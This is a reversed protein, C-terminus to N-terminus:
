RQQMRSDHVKRKTVRLLQWGYYQRNLGNLKKLAGQKITEPKVEPEVELKVEPEVESEVEPEAESEVTSASHANNVLAQMTSRTTSKTVLIVKYRDAIATSNFCSNVVKKM